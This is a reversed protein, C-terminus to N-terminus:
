LYRETYLIRASLANTTGCQIRINQTNRNLRNLWDGDMVWIANQNNVLVDFNDADVIIKQGPLLTVNLVTVFEDVAEIDCISTVIEYYNMGDRDCIDAGLSLRGIVTEHLDSIEVIDAGLQWKGNVWEESITGSKDIVDASMVLDAYLKEFVNLKDLNYGLAVVNEVVTEAMTLSDLIGPNGTVLASVSEKFVILDRVEQMVALIGRVTEIMTLKDLVLGSSSGGNYPTLNYQSQNYSM